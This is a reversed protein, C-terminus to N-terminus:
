GVGIGHTMRFSTGHKVGHFYEDTNRTTRGGPGAPQALFRGSNIFRMILKPHDAAVAGTVTMNFNGWVDIEPSIRGYLPWYAILSAPRVYCPRVFRLVSVEADTLAAAWIAPYAIRGSMYQAPTAKELRGIATADISSPAALTANTGKSGGDIYAAKSLDSAFVACAHHWTNASYGTTSDAQSPGAAYEAQARVPDGAVAGAIALRFYNNNTATDGLSILTQNATADDSYFWAALTLPTAVVVASTNKLFDSVADNFLRAM